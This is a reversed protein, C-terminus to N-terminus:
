VLLLSPLVFLLQVQLLHDAGLFGITLILPVDLVLVLVQIAFGRRRIQGVVKVVEGWPKMSFNAQVPWVGTLWVVCEGM